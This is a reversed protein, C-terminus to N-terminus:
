QNQLCYESAALITDRCNKTKFQGQLKERHNDNIPWAESGYLIDNPVCASSLRGRARLPLGRSILSPLLDKFMSWETIVALVHM